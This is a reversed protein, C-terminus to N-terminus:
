YKYKALGNTTEILKFNLSEFLNISPINSERVTAILSRPLAPICFLSEMCSELFERSLRRGRFQPNLNISLDFLMKQSDQDFRCMGIKHGGMQGIFIFVDHKAITERFWFDHDEWSVFDQNLSNLRTLEDNRWYWIDRSDALNARRILMKSEKV